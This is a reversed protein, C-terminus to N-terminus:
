MIMKQMQRVNGLAFMITRELYECKLAGFNHTISSTIAGGVIPINETDASASLPAISSFAVSFALMGVVAKKALKNLKM